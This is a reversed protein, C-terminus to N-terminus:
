PREGVVLFQKGVLSWVAPLRLYLAALWGRAPLRGRFTLPLYRARCSVIKFGAGALHECVSMETLITEHDAFDFYEKVCYKFNPGMVAIRGGRKLVRYMKDLFSAVAEPNPLHELFNSVVVGEFYEEPLPAQLVDAVVVRVGGEAYNLVSESQDVAWREDAAVCNIFECRGAAPDLVVRPKSMVAHIHQAIPRWVESRRRQDIGRFRYEYIRALNM